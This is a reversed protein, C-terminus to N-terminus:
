KRAQRAEMTAMVTFGVCGMVGFLLFGLGKVAWHSDPNAATTFLTILPPMSLLMPLLAALQASTSRQPAPLASRGRLYRWTLVGLAALFVAFGSFIWVMGTHHDRQIFYPAFFEWVGLLLMLAATAFHYRSLFAFYRSTQAEHHSAAALLDAADTPRPETTM